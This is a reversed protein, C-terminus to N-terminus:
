IPGRKYSEEPSNMQSNASRTFISADQTTSSCFKESVDAQYSSENAVNLSRSLDTYNTRQGGRGSTECGFDLGSRSISERRSHPNVSPNEGSNIFPPDFMSTFVGFWSAEGTASQETHTETDTKGESVTM